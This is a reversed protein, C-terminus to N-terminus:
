SKWSKSPQKIMILSVQVVVTMSYLFQTCIHVSIKSNPNEGEEEEALRRAIFAEAFLYLLYHCVRDVRLFESWQGRLIRKLISHYGECLSMTNDGNHYILNRLSVNWM